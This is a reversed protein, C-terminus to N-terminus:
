MMKVKKHPMNNFLSTGLLHYDIDGKESRSTKNCKISSVTHWCAQKSKGYFFIEYIIYEGILKRLWIMPKQQNHWKVIIKMLNSLQYIQKTLLLIITEALMSLLSIITKCIIMNMMKVVMNWIYFPTKCIIMVYVVMCVNIASSNGYIDKLINEIM